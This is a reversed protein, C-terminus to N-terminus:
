FFSRAVMRLLLSREGASCRKGGKKKKANGSVFCSNSGISSDRGKEKRRKVIPPILSPSDVLGKRGRGGKSDEGITLIAILGAASGCPKGGGLLVLYDVPFSLPPKRQDKRGKGKRFKVRKTPRTGQCYIGDLIKRRKPANSM